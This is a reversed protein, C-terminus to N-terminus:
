YLVYTNSHLPLPNWRRQKRNGLTKRGNAQIVHRYVCIKLEITFNLDEYLTYKYIYWCNDNGIYKKDLFKLLEM